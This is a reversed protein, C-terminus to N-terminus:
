PTSLNITLPNNLTIFTILTVGGGGMLSSGSKFAMGLVPSLKSLAVRADDSVQKQELHRELDQECKLIKKSLKSIKEEHKAQLTRFSISIYVSFFLFSLFLSLADNLHTPPIRTIQTITSWAQELQEQLTRIEDVQNFCISKQKELKEEM